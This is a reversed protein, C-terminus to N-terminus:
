HVCNDNERMNMTIGYFSYLFVILGLGPKCKKSRHKSSYLNEFNPFIHAFKPTGLENILHFHCCSGPEKRKMMRMRWSTLRERKGEEEVENNTAAEGDGEEEERPLQRDARKENEKGVWQM